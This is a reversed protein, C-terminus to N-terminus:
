LGYAHLNSLRRMLKNIMSTIARQCYKGEDIDQQLVNMLSGRKDMIHSHESRLRQIALKLDEKKAERMIARWKLDVIPANIRTFEAEKEQM